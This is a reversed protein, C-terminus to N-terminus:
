RQILLLTLYIKVILFFFGNRGKQKLLNEFYEAAFVHINKPQNRLIEAILGVLLSKFGQPIRLKTNSLPNAM